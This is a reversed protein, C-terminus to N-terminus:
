AQLGKEAYELEESARVVDPYRVEGLLVGIAGKALLTFAFFGVAWIFANNFLELLTPTYETYEGLPTPIFGPLVLTM